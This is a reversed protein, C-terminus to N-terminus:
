DGTWEQPNRNREEGYDRWSRGIRQIEDKGERSAAWKDWAAKRRAQHMRSRRLKERDIPWPKSVEASREFDENEEEMGLGESGALDYGTVVDSLHRVVTAVAEKGKMGRQVLTDVAAAVAHDLDSIVETTTRQQRQARYSQLDTVEQLSQLFTKKREKQGEYARDYPGLGGQQSAEKWRAQLLHKLASRRPGEPLRRIHSRLDDENMRLARRVGIPSFHQHLLATVEDIDM